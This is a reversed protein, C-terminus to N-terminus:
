QMTNLVTYFLEMDDREAACVFCRVCAQNFAVKKLHRADNFPIHMGMTNVICRLVDYEVASGDQWGWSQIEKTFVPPPLHRIRDLALDLFMADECLEVHGELLSELTPIVGALLAVRAQERKIDSM